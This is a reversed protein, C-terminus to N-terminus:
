YYAQNVQVPAILYPFQEAERLLSDNTTTPAMGFYHQERTPIYRLYKRWWFRDLGLRRGSHISASIFRDDEYSHIGFMRIIHNRVAFESQRYWNGRRVVLGRRISQIRTAVLVEVFRWIRLVVEVPLDAISGTRLARRRTSALMGNARKNSIVM